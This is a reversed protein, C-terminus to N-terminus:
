LNNGIHAANLLVKLTDTSKARSGDVIVDSLKASGTQIIQEELRHYSEQDGGRVKMLELISQDRQESFLLQLEPYTLASGKSEGTPQGTLEDIHDNNMPVSMKNTLTQIQRRWPLELILYRKPTMSLINPDQPDSIVLREFFEHGWAAGVELNRKTSLRKKSFNPEYVPLIVQGSEIDTVLKEFGEDSLGTLYTRYYEMDPTGPLIADTDKLFQDIFADRPSM